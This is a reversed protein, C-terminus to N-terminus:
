RSLYLDSYKAVMQNLSFRASVYELANDKLKKVNFENNVIKQFLNIWEMENELNLQLPWLPPLTENLGPAFSAIVPVQSFSAEISLLVLGEFRSPMVIFDFVHLKESINPEASYTKVNNTLKELKEVKKQYTGDGIIHFFFLDEFHKNLVLIRKLLVDIGKQRELRGCFAINIKKRDIRFPTEKRTPISCGNYVVYQAKSVSLNNKIRLNNYALLAADSVGVVVDNVFASETYKGLSAHTPWLQTNHITRIIAPTQKGVIKLLRIAISLVFDPLDTHSHIIEPKEKIILYSLILPSIILSFRKSARCLTITRINKHFLEKKKAIAYNNNIAFLEVISFDFKQPNAKVCNEALSIAVNESGGLNLCTVLHFIKIM